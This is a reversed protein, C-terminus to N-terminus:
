QNASSNLTFDLLMLRFAPLFADWSTDKASGVFGIAYGRMAAMVISGKYYSGDPMKQAFDMMIAPEKAITFDSTTYIEPNEDPFFSGLFAELVQRTEEGSGNWTDSQTKIAIVSVSLPYASSDPKPASFTVMASTEDYNVQWGDPYTMAFVGAPDTYPILTYREASRANGCASIFLGLLTFILLIPKLKKM